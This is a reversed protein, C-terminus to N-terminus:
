IHTEGVVLYFGLLRAFYNQIKRIERNTYILPKTSESKPAPGNKTPEICVFSPPAHIIIPERMSLAAVQKQNKTRPEQNKTRQEKNKTRQEQNVHATKAPSKRYALKHMQKRPQSRSPPPRLCRHMIKRTTRPLTLSWSPRTQFSTCNKQPACSCASAQTVQHMEKRCPPFEVPSKGLDHM